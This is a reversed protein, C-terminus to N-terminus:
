RDQGAPVIAGLLELLRLHFEVAAQLGEESLKDITDHDTHYFPPAQIICFPKVQDCVVFLDAICNHVVTPDATMLGSERVLRPLMLELRPRPKPGLYVSRLNNLNAPWGAAADNGHRADLHELLIMDDGAIRYPDAEVFARMGAGADHHGSLGLFLFDARRGDVGLESLRKALGVMVALGSADDNAGSFFSDLHAAFVVRRGLPPGRLTAVTNLGDRAADPEYEISAALASGAELAQELRAGDEADICFAPIPRIGDPFNSEPMAFPKDVPVVARWRGPPTPLSFIFGGAGARVARQYLLQSRVSTRAPTLEMEARVYAWAGKADQWDSINEIVKVPLPGTNAPFRADFPAPMASALVAGDEIEVRWTTPRHAKFEFSELGVETVWPRLQEALLRASAREAESGGIRGWLMSLPESAEALEVYEAALSLLDKDLAPPSSATQGHAPVAALLGICAAPLLARWSSSCARRGFLRTRLCSISRM